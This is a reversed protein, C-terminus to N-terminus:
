KGQSRHRSHQDTQDFIQDIHSHGSRAADAFQAVEDEAHQKDYRCTQDVLFLAVADARQDPRDDARHDHAHEAQQCVVVNGVGDVFVEHRDLRDDAHILLDEAAHVTQPFAQEDEVHRIGYELPEQARRDGEEDVLRYAVRHLRDVDLHAHVAIVLQDFLTFLLM